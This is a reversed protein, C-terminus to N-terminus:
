AKSKKKRGAKEERHSWERVNSVVGKKAVKYKEQDLWTQQAKGEARRMVTKSTVRAMDVLSQKRGEKSGEGMGGLGGICREEGLLYEL